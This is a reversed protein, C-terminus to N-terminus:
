ALGLSVAAGTALSSGFTRALTREHSLIQHRTFPSPNSPKMLCASRQPTYGSSTISYSTRRKRRHAHKRRGLDRRLMNCCLTPASRHRKRLKQAIRKLGLILIQDGAPAVAIQRRVGKDSWWLSSPTVQATSAGGGIVGSSNRKVIQRTAGDTITITSSSSARRCNRPSADISSATSKTQAAAASAM